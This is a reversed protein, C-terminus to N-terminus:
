YLKFMVKFLLQDKTLLGFNRSDLSFPTEGKVYFGKEKIEDVRKIMMGEKDHKFVVFDNVAIRNFSFLKRCLLTEKDKFYPDLSDGKVKFLRLM